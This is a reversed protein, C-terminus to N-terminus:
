EAPCAAVITLSGPESGEPVAVLAWTSGDIAQQVPATLAGNAIGCAFTETSTCGDMVLSVTVGLGAVITNAEAVLEVSGFDLSFTGDAAIASTAALEPGVPTGDAVALARATVSMTWPDADTDVTFTADLRIPKDPGLTVAVSMLYRGSLDVPGFCEGPEPAKRLPETRELFDDLEAHTDFCGVALPGFAVSALAILAFPRLPNGPSSMLAERIMMM